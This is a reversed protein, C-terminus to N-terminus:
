EHDQASLLKGLLHFTFTTIEGLQLDVAVTLQTIFEENWFKYFVFIWSSFFGEDYAMKLQPRIWDRELHDDPGHPFPASCDLKRKTKCIFFFSIPFFLFLALVRPNCPKKETRNKLLSNVDKAQKKNKKRSKAARRGYFMFSLSLNTVSPSM